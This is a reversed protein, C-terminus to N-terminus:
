KFNYGLEELQKEIEDVTKAGINDLSSIEKKSKECLEEITNIGARKLGNYARNSIDLTEISTEEAPVDAVDVSEVKVEQFVKSREITEEINELIFMHEKMIHSSYSLAEEPTITGNTYIDLILKDFNTKDGVRTDEVSYAFKTVPTYISDVYIVSAKKEKGRNTEALVYGLGKSAVFEMYFDKDDALTVIKLDKNVIEVGAPCVIDAATLVGAKNGSLTLVYDEDQNDIRLKLDKVALVVTTIDEIITPLVDFEHSVGKISIQKVAGGPLSSLSIRRLTNGITIGFGSELPDIQFQKHNPDNKDDLVKVKPFIM